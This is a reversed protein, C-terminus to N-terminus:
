GKIEEIKFDRELKYATSPGFWKEFIRAAEGSKEMQTLVDNVHKLFAPEGKRIGLGWPEVFLSKRVIDVPHDSSETQQKLKVLVLESACFGNVKGQQLALFSASGDQYTLTQADPIERRVGQESSSGKVASIKQGKLQDLTKIGSDRRVLIKQQSVFYSYSYDIQEARAKTWGLNAALIDVRGQTLEPIRAAVSISKLEMPVGLSQAIKGCMDVDYGIIERTKPDQYSFPESTGLTGCIMKGRAKIDQLQDAQAAGLTLACAAAAGLIVNLLKM